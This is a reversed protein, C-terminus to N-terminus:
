RASRRSPPQPARAFSYSKVTPEGGSFDVLFELDMRRPRGGVTKFSAIGAFIGPRRERVTETRARELKLRWVAGKPDRISWVGDVANKALFLDVAALWDTRADLASVRPRAAAESATKEAPAQVPSREAPESGPEPVYTVHQPEYDGPPPADEDQAFGASALALLAALSAALPLKKMAGM